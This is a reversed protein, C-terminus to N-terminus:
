NLLNLFFIIKGNRLKFDVENKLVNLRSEDIFNKRNDSVLFINSKFESFIDRFTDLKLHDSIPSKNLRTLTEDKDFILFKINGKKGLKSWYVSNINKVWLNPLAM